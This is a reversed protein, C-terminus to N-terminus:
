AGNKNTNKLQKLMATVQPDRKGWVRNVSRCSQGKLTSPEDSIGDLNKACLFQLGRVTTHRQNRLSINLRKSVIGAHSHSLRLPCRVTACEASAYLRATVFGILVSSGVRSRARSHLESPRLPDTTPFIQSLPSNQAPFSLTFSHHISLTTFRCFFVIHFTHFSILPFFSLSPYASPLFRQNWLSCSAYRFCRDPIPLAHATPPLVLTMM